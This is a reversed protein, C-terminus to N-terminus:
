RSNRDIEAHQDYEFWEVQRRGIREAKERTAYSFTGGSVAHLMGGFQGLTVIQWPRKRDPNYHMEAVDAGDSTQFMKVLM